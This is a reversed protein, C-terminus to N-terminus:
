STIRTNGREHSVLRSLIGDRAIVLTCIPAESMRSCHLGFGVPTGVAVSLRAALRTMQIRRQRLDGRQRAWPRTPRLPHHSRSVGGVYMRDPERTGVAGFGRRDLPGAPTTVGILRKADIAM